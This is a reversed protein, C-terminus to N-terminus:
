AAKDMAERRRKKMLIIRCCNYAIVKELLEDRVADIGRRGLEGFAFGDKITFMLSEVASRNRRADRYLDSDWDTEDTLKKGKAGSISIDKVKMGLVEDRGKGSAYGDDSSVLEAIVGTRTISDRIAPVLEVSDAANGQPVILSTVFGNASRVLQPKYGIMPNRSGKKIYSASGDSLSLVKETSSLNKDRFVRDGAYKIVRDADSLDARIQQLVGQLLARRSPALSELRLEHELRNLEGALADSAKRGRKLLQRYRKKLKGKSNAKGAVLCIQFELKDMEMLWGPIWGPRFDKLGFIHMKQGLRNARMLLGTLIKADTPWSSNAKVSTSDITLKKFDDLEEKLIFAIQRDFILERTEHSVLNVNEVITSVGPMGLGHRELFAYMSMSEHLFRRARKSSLSGLFGRIMLFVYVAYGPLRPRGVAIRLDEALLNGEEIKLEPLAETRSEFFKQDELRLMKKERARTDLDKEILEVIEPAFGALEEVEELFDRFDTDPVPLILNSIPLRKVIKEETACAPM